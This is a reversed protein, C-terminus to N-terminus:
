GIDLFVESSLPWDGQCYVVLGPRSIRTFRSKSNAPPQIDSILLSEVDSLLQSSFHRGQEMYLNGVLMCHEHIRRESNLYEWVRGKARCKWREKVSAKDAKGIYFIESQDLATIAYLVRRLNWLESGPSDIGHWQVVIDM